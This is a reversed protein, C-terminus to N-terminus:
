ITAGALEEVFCAEPAMGDLLVGADELEFFSDSTFFVDSIGTPTSELADGALHILAGTFGSSASQLM